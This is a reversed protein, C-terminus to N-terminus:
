AIPGWDGYSNPKLKRGASIRMSVKMQNAVTLFASKPTGTTAMFAPYRICIDNNGFRPWRYQTLFLSKFTSRFPTFSKDVTFDLM